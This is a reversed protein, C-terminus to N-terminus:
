VVWLWKIEKSGRWTNEESNKKYWGVENLDNSGAYFFEEGGQAAYEWEAETPLRYGNAEVNM